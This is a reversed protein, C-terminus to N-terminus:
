AARGIGRTARLRAIARRVRVGANGRVSGPTALEKIVSRHDCGEAAAAQKIAILDYEDM